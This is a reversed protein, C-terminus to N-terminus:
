QFINHCGPKIEHICHVDINGEGVGLLELGAELPGERSILIELVVIEYFGNSKLRGNGQV